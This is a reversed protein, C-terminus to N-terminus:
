AAWYSSSRLISLFRLEMQFVGTDFFDGDLWGPITESPRGESFLGIFTPDTSLDGSREEILRMTFHAQEVYRAPTASVLLGFDPSIRAGRFYEEILQVSNRSPASPRRDMKKGSAARNWSFISLAIKLTFGSLDKEDALLVDREEIV